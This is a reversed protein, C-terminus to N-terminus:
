PCPTFALTTCGNNRNLRNNAGNAASMVCSAGIPTLRPDQGMDCLDSNSVTVIKANDLSLATGQFLQNVELGSVKGTNVGDFRAGYLDPDVVVVGEVTAADGEVLVGISFGRIPGVDSVTVDKAGKKIYVGRAQADTLDGLAAAFYPTSSAKGNLVASTTFSGSSNQRHLMVYSTLGSTSNMHSVLDLLGDNDMDRADLIYPAGLSLYSFTLAFTGTTKLRNSYVRIYSYKSGSTSLVVEPQGDGDLDRVIYSTITDGVKIAQQSSFSGKGTNLLVRFEKPTTMSSQLVVLDPKGDGNMDRAAIPRSSGFSKGKSFSGSGSNYYTQTSVSSLYSNPLAMDIDGDNDFDALLGAGGGRMENTSLSWQTAFAFSTGVKYGRQIQRNHLFVGLGGGVVLDMVRDGTLDGVDLNTTFIGWNYAAQFLLGALGKNLALEESANNGAAILDPTGDQNLDLARPSTLKSNKSTYYPITNFSGNGSSRFVRLPGSTAPLVLDLRGDGNFDAATPTNGVTDKYPTTWTKLWSGTSGPNKYVSPYLSSGRHILLDKYRAVTVAMNNGDLHVRSADVVFCDGGTSKVAQAVKYRTNATFGSGKCATLTQPAITLAWIGSGGAQGKDDKCKVSWTYKGDKLGKIKFAASAAPTTLTGQLKTNMWLECSAVKNTASVKFAFSVEVLSSTSNNAPSLLTVNVPGAPPMDPQPGKDKPQVPGDQKGPLDKPPVKQDKGVGGDLKKGKDPLPKKKDARPGIDEVKGLDKGADPAMCAGKGNKEVCTYGGPCQVSECVGADGGCGGVLLLVFLFVGTLSMACKSYPM